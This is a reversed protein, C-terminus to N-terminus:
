ANEIKRYSGEFYQLVTSEIANDREDQELPEVRLYDHCPRKWSHMGRIARTEQLLSEAKRPVSVRSLPAAPRQGVEEILPLNLALSRGNLLNGLFRALGKLINNILTVGKEGRSQWVGIGATGMVHTCLGDM